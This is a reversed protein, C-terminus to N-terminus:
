KRKSAALRPRELGVSLRLFLGRWVCCGRARSHPQGLEDAARRARMREPSTEIRRRARAESGSPDKCTTTNKSKPEIESGVARKRTCSDVAEAGDLSRPYVLVPLIVEPHDANGPHSAGM